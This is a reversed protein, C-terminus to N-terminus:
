RILTLDGKKYVLSGNVSLAEILYVFVGPNVAQGNLTGDWGIEVLKPDYDYAGFVKNGWRDYIEYKRVKLIDEGTALIVQDNVKDGNPSFVDPIFIRPETIVSITLEDSIECGNEDIIHLKYRTTRLPKVYTEICNPCFISESPIWEIQKALNTDVNTFGTIIATQGLLITTDKFVKLSPEPKEIINVLTDYTCGFADKIYIRQIGPSLNRFETNLNFNLGDLSVLYPPKGGFVNKVLIKGDEIGFCSPSEIVVEVGDLIRSAENVVFKRSSACGNLKNKVLLEYEGESEILVTNVNNNSVIRGNISSWLYEFISVFDNGL